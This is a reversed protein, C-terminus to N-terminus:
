DRAGVGGVMTGMVKSTLTRRSKSRVSVVSQQASIQRRIDMAIDGRGISQRICTASLGSNGCSDIARIEHARASGVCVVVTGVIMRVGNVDFDVGTYLDVVVVQMVKVGLANATDFAWKHIAVRGIVIM